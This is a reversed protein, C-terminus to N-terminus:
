ANYKGTQALVASGYTIRARQSAHKGLERGSVRVFDELSCPERDVAIFVQHERDEGRYLDPGGKRSQKGKWGGALSRTADNVVQACSPM